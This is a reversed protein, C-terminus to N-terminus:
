GIEEGEGDLIKLVEESKLKPIERLKDGTEYGCVSRYDCWKCADEGAPLVHILGSQLNVVMSKLVEDVKKHLKNFEESTILSGKLVGDSNMSVPIFVGGIDKEMGEIVTMDNLVLGNM